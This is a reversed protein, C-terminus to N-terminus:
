SLWERDRVFDRTRQAVEAPPNGEARWSGRAHAMEKLRGSWEPAIKHELWERILKALGPSKGGTSVTLILDGRRVLAPVHFDCLEPVDEVNVLIGHERARNALQESLDRGLGAVFLVTLGDLSAEAAVPVPTVGAEDLLAKRRALGEGAGALGISVAKPNLVIPLM